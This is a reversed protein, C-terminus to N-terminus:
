PRPAPRRHAVAHARRDHTRQPHQALEGAGLGVLLDALQELPLSERKREFEVLSSYELFVAALQDARFFFGDFAGVDIYYVGTTTATFADPIAYTFAAPALTAHFATDFCAVQPVGRLLREVPRPTM